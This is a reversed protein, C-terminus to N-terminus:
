HVLHLDILQFFTEEYRQYDANTLQKELIDIQTAALQRQEFNTEQAERMEQRQLIITYVLGAITLGSFLANIAGYMDGYQGWRQYNAGTREMDGGAARAVIEPVYYWIVLVLVLVIVPFVNRKM